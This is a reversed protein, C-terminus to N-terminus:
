SYIRASGHYFKKVVLSVVPLKYRYTPRRPCVVNLFAINGPLFNFLHQDVVIRNDLFRESVVAVYNTSHCVVTPLRSLLNHETAACVAVAPDCQNSITSTFIKVISGCVTLSSSDIM